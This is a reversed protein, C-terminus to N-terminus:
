AEKGTLDTNNIEGMVQAGANGAGLNETMNNGAMDLNAGTGPNAGMNAAAANLNATATNLADMLNPAAQLPKEEAAVPQASQAPQDAAPQQGASPTVPAVPSSVAPQVPTEVPASAQVPAASVAGMNAVGEVNSQGPVASTTGQTPQGAGPMPMVVPTVAPAQATAVSPTASTAGPAATAGASASAAPALVSMKVSVKIKDKFYDTRFAEFVKRIEPDFDVGADKSANAFFSEIEEDSADADLMKELEMLKADPLARIMAQQMREDLEAMLEGQLTEKQKADLMDGGKDAILRDVFMQLVKEDNLKNEPMKLVKRCSKERRELKGSVNGLTLGKIGIEGIKKL